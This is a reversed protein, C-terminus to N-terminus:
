ATAFWVPVALREGIARERARRIQRVARSDLLQSVTPVGFYIWTAAGAVLAVVLLLALLAKTGSRFTTPATSTTGCRRRLAADLKERQALGQTFRLGAPKSTSLREDVAVVRVGIANGPL